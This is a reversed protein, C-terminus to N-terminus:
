GLNLFKTNFFIDNFLSPREPEVGNLSPWLVGWTTRILSRHLTMSLQTGYKKLNCSILSHKPASTSPPPAWSLILMWNLQKPNPSKPRGTPNWWILLLYNLSATLSEEQLFLFQNRTFVVILYIGTNRQFDKAKM